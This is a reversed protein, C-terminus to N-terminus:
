ACRGYDYLPNKLHLRVLVSGSLALHDWLIDFQSLSALQALMAAWALVSSLVLQEL